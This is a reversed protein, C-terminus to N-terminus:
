TTARCTRTGAQAGGSTAATAHLASAHTAAGASADADAASAGQACCPGAAPLKWYKHARRENHRQMM